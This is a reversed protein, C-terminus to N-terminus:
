RASEKVIPGNLSFPIERDIPVVDFEQSEVVVVLAQLNADWGWTIWNADLPFTGSYVLAEGKLIAMLDDADLRYRRYRRNLNM